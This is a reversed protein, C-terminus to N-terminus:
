KSALLKLGMFMTWLSIAYAEIMESMAMGSGPLFKFLIGSVIVTLSFIGLIITFWGTRVSNQRIFNSGLILLGLPILIFYLISAMSHLPFETTFLGVLILSVNGFILLAIGLGSLTTAKLARELGLVFVLVLLGSIIVGPNFFLYGEGVGLDSLNNLNWDFWPSFSIATLILSLGIIPGIIGCLGAISVFNSTKPM